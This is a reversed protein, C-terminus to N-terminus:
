SYGDVQTLSNRACSNLNHIALGQSLWVLLDNIPGSKQNIQPNCGNTLSSHLLKQRFILSWIQTKCIHRKVLNVIPVQGRFWFWVGFRLSTLLVDQSFECFTCNGRFRGLYLYQLQFIAKKSGLNHRKACWCSQWVDPFCM